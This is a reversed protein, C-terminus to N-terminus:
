PTAAPPVTAQISAAINSILIVIQDQLLVFAVVVLVAIAGLILAYETMGQGEERQFRTLLWSVFM